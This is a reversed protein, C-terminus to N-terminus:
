GLFRKLEIESFDAPGRAHGIYNELPLPYPLIDNQIPKFLTIKFIPSLTVGINKFNSSDCYDHNFAAAKQSQQNLRKFQLVLGYFINQGNRTLIYDGKTITRSKWFTEGEEPLNRLTMVKRPIFRDRIDNNLKFTKNQLLWLLTKKAFPRGDRLKLYSDNSTESSFEFKDIMSFNKHFDNQAEEDSETNEEKIALKQTEDFNECDTDEQDSENELEVTDLQMPEQYQYNGHKYKKKYEESLPFKSVKVPKLFRDLSIKECSMGVLACDRQAQGFADLTIKELDEFSIDESEKFLEANKQREVLISSIFDSKLRHLSNEEFEVLLLRHMFSKMTCNLNTYCMGTMSRIKRFFHENVQSTIGHIYNAKKDAVLSLMFVLNIELSEWVQMSMFHDKISLKNEHLWNRWIRSIQVCYIAAFLREKLTKDKHVYATIIHDIL